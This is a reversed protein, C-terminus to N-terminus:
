ISYYMKEQNKFDLIEKNIEDDLEAIRYINDRIKILPNIYRKKGINEVSYKDKIKEKSEYVKDFNRLKEWQEKIKVNKTEDLIKAIDEEKQTMFMKADIIKAEVSMKLIESLLNNTITSIGGSMFKANNLVVKTIKKAIEINQFCMEDIGYENKTIIIDKYVKDAEELTIIGRATGTYLNYELRDSSLQPVDNDAIPYLAYDSVEEVKINYRKLIENIEKSERIIEETLSETSTQTEADNNYYDIVHSFTPTAIDHLLGAISQKKDKTFNWVILGVGISHEFRSYNYKFTQIKNSIYDRGCNQGIYKLRQMEKTRAIENIFNPINQSYISHLKKINEFDKETLKKM